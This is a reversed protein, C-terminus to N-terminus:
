KSGDSKRTYVYRFRQANADASESPQLTMTNDDFRIKYETVDGGTASELYIVNQVENLKFTGSDIQENEAYSIYKNERTFEFSRNIGVTDTNTIDKSGRFIGTVEWEGVVKEINKTPTENNIPIDKKDKISYGKKDQGQDKDERQANAEHSMSTCIFAFLIIYIIKFM